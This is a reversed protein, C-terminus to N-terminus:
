AKSATTTTPTPTPLTDPQPSPDFDIFDVQELAGTSVRGDSRPWEKPQGNVLVTVGSVGDLGTITFVIQALAKTQQLGRATFFRDDLDLTAVGDGAVTIKGRTGSPIASSLNRRRDAADPGQFLENVVTQPDRTPRITPVLRDGGTGSDAPFFYVRGSLQGPITTVASAPGGSGAPATIPTAVNDASLGCAGVPVVLCLGALVKLFRRTM